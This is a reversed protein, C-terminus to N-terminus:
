QFELAVITRNGVQRRQGLLNLLIALRQEQGPQAWAQGSFQLRGNVIAGSGEMQLPGSLTSLTLQAREGRWDFQLRYAGLPKVPSLASAIDTLQLQMRGSIAIGQAQRRLTLSPWSLRMEGSPQVTNLPAGLAALREAPLRLSVPGLQWESWSGSVTLTQDLADPNDIRADIVGFLALPSLTWHFRGPLLPALPSAPDAAASAGAFASGRWVTGAPDGLTLRGDTQREIWPTLWAAPLVFLATLLAVLLAALGILLARKM